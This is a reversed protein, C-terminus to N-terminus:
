DRVETRGAYISISSLNKRSILPPPVPAFTISSCLITTDVLISTWPPLELGCYCAGGGLFPAYFSLLYSFYTSEVAKHSNQSLTSLSKLSEM